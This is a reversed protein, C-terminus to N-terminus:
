PSATSAGGREGVMVDAQAAAAPGKTRGSGYGSRRGDFELGPVAYRSQWETCGSSGWADVRQPPGARDSPGIRPGSGIAPVLRYAPSGAGPRLDSGADTRDVFSKVTVVEARGAWPGVTGVEISFRSFAWASRWGSGWGAGCRRGRGRLGRTIGKAAPSREIASRSPPLPALRASIVRMPRGTGRPKTM